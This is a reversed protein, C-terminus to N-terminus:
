SEAMRRTQRFYIRNPIIRALKMFWAFRVPFTIEFRDSQFGRVIAAASREEAILFPMPFRNQATM